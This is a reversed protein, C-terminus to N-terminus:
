NKVRIGIVNPLNWFHDNDDNPYSNSIYSGVKEIKTDGINVYFSTEPGGEMYITEKIIFPFSLLFKIMENHTYPSRTFVFYVNGIEDIAAVLMSCSQNRKNWGLANGNCDIMRLGQAYCHYDSKISEWNTCTLDFINFNSALSDKPNFAIMTNYTPHIVPNNKHLFSQLYGKSLLTKSLDYMGANIVINLNFSDAWENAPRSKNQFETASLLLFEVQKPEIKLISLKSDNVISKFPANTECYDIGKALNTWEISIRTSDVVQGKSFFNLSLIFFFLFYNNLPKM